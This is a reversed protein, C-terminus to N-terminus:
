SSMRMQLNTLKYIVLQFINGGFLGNREKKTHESKWFMGHEGMM